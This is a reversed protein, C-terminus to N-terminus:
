KIVPAEGFFMTKISSFRSKANQISLVIDTEYTHREEFVCLFGLPKQCYQSLKPTAIEAAERRRRGFRPLSM